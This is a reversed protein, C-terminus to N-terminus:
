IKYSLEQKLELPFPGINKNTTAMSEMTIFRKITTKKRM